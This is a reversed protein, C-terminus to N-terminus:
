GVPDHSQGSRARLADVALRLRRLSRSWLANRCRVPLIVTSYSTEALVLSVPSIGKTSSAEMAAHQAKSSSSGRRLIPADAGVCRANRAQPPEFHAFVSMTLSRRPRWLSFTGPMRLEDTEEVGDLVLNGGTLDNVGDEVVIARVLLGLHPFPERTMRAPREM